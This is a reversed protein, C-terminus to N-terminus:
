PATVVTNDELHKGISGLIIKDMIKSPVSTLTVPQPNRPGGEQGEPFDPCCDGTELWSPGGPNGLGNLIRLLPKTIADAVRQFIRLHIGGPGM